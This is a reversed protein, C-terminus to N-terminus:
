IRVVGCSSAKCMRRERVRMPESPALQLSDEEETPARVIIGSPAASSTVRSAGRSTTTPTAATIADAVAPPPARSASACTSARALSHARNTNPEESSASRTSPARPRASGRHRTSPCLDYGRVRM